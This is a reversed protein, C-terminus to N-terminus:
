HALSERKLASRILKAAYANSADVPTQFPMGRRWSEPAEPHVGSLVVWGSGVTGEVVAPTGDPYRAVVSGWGTLEPGDEWYVEITEGAATRIAVPEKRIGRAEDSYFNFRAGATLNLGNYPSNGALFAGACIGLYSSGGQIANRIRATAGPTLGKGLKVFNGGPVILLRFAQIEAESLRNLQSSDAKSYDLREKRLVTEMADVDGPSSGAGNFLLIPAITPPGGATRCGALSAALLVLGLRAGIGRALPRIM